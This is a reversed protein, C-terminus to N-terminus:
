TRNQQFIIRYNSYPNTEKCSIHKSTSDTIDTNAYKTKTGINQSDPIVLNHLPKLINSNTKIITPKHLDPGKPFTITSKHFFDKPFLNNRYLVSM